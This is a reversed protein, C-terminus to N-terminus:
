PAPWALAPLGAAEPAVGVDAGDSQALGRPRRGCIRLRHHAGQFAGNADAGDAADDAAQRLVPGIAPVPRGFRPSVTTASKGASPPPPTGVQGGDGLVSTLRAISLVREEEM